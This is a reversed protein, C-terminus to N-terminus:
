GAAVDQAVSVSHKKQEQEDDADEHHVPLAVTFTAGKGVTSEVSLEGGHNRIIGHSLSLGLGTGEGVRRTTFFPDFVKSQVDGPIGCGTDTLCVEIRADPDDTVGRLGTEVILRGGEPMAKRANIIINTFVQQLQTQNGRVHPLEVDLRRELKVNHMNLQRETFSFTKELVEGVDLTTMEVTNARSFNLLNNIIDKCRQSESEIYGLYTTYKDFDQKRVEDPNKKRMKELAFQAYGLIGVIPNNLEHAVGAALQGVAAMKGAQVIQTQTEKLKVLSQELDQFLRANELAIAVQDAFIALLEVDRQDFDGKCTLNALVFLGAVRDKHKLPACVASTIMRESGVLERLPEDRVNRDALTIRGDVVAQGLLGKGPEITLQRPGQGSPNRNVIVDFREGDEEGALLISGVEAPMLKFASDMILGATKNMDLTSNIAASVDHLVSLEVVRQNLTDINVKNEWLERLLRGNEMEGRIIYVSLLTVLVMLGIRLTPLNGFLPAISKVEGEPVVTVYFGVGLSLLVLGSLIWM